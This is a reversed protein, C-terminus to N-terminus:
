RVGEAYNHDFKLSLVVLVIRIKVEMWEPKAAQHSALSHRATLDM